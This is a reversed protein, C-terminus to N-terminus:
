YKRISYMFLNLPLILKIDEKEIMQKLQYLMKKIGEKIEAQKDNKKVEFDKEILYRMMYIWRSNKLLEEGKKLNYAMEIFDYFKYM